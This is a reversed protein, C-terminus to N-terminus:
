CWCIGRTVVKDEAQRYGQAALRKQLMHCQLVVTSLRQRITRALGEEAKNSLITTQLAHVKVRFGVTTIYLCYEHQILCELM